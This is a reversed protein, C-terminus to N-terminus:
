MQVVGTIHASRQNRTCATKGEIENSRQLDRSEAQCAKDKHARLMVDDRPASDHESEAIFCLFSCIDRDKSTERMSALKVSKDHVCACTISIPTSMASARKSDPSLTGTTPSTEASV